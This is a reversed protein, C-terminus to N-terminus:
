QRWRPDIDLLDDDPGSAIAPPVIEFVQVRALVVAPIPYPRLGIRENREQEAFWRAECKRHLWEGQIQRLPHGNPPKGCYRCCPPAGGQEAIEALVADYDSLPGNHQQPPKQPTFPPSRYSVDAPEDKNAKSTEEGDEQMERREEGPVTAVDCRDQLTKIDPLIKTEDPIPDGIALKLPRGDAKENNVLLGREIAKRVRHHTPSKDLRLARAVAALSVDTGLVKVAAVTERVTKPVTAEIGEAFLDAILERVVEYDALTAVVRGAKDTARTKRHLLAHAKILSLLLTFDRRLRVAVPPILEGLKVAFPVVVKRQGALIWRQLAHWKSFDTPKEKGSGSASAALAGIVEGTQANDDKSTLSLLRTENEPHLRASTTTTILGTPGPKEILRPRMGHKTKEVFEYLLRGESLLSRILYSGYDSNMGAAEYIVIHRHRFDEQSYALARESLGTREFYAEPPLHRLVCEVLFSKGVSSAGKIATSVPREFPRTTLALFLIKANRTEGVLGIAEVSKGFRDLIDPANVLDGAAAELEDISPPPTKPKTEGNTKQKKEARAKEGKASEACFIPTECPTRGCTACRRRSM